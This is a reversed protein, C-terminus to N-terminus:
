RAEESRHTPDGSATARDRFWRVFDDAAEASYLIPIGGRERVWEADEDEFVLIHPTM